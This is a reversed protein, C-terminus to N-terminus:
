PLPVIKSFIIRISDICATYIAGMCVWQDFYLEQISIKKYTFPIRAETSGFNSNKEQKEYVIQRKVAPCSMGNTLPHFFDKSAM